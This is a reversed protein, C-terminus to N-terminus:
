HYNYSVNKTRKSWCRRCDRCEGGQKPAPCSFGVAREEYHVSSTNIFAKSPKGDVMAASVRITLNGPIRNFNQRILKAERTPMWFKTDPCRRCVQFIKDLHTQGQIDGSDHFRFYHMDEILTVMADVWRLDNLSELRRYQAAQVNSFRYQGKMAYCDSCTSGEICALKMGVNCEAAPLGYSKCPMKGTSSLGGVIENAERKLM